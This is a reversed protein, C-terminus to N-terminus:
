RARRGEQSRDVQGQHEQVGGARQHGRCQGRGSGARRLCGAVGPGLPRGAQVHVDYKRRSGAHSGASHQDAGAPVAAPPYAMAPDDYRSPDLNNAMGQDLGQNMSDMMQKQRLYDMMQMGSDSGMGNAGAGAGAFPSQASAPTASAKIDDIAKQIQDSTSGPTDGTTSGPTGPTTAGPPNLSNPDFTSDPTKIPNPTLNPNQQAAPLGAIAKQLDAANDASQKALTADFKDMRDIMAQVGDASKESSGAGEEGINIIETLAQSMVDMFEKDTAIGSVAYNMGSILNTIKEHGAVTTAEVDKMVKILEEETADFSAADDKLKKATDRYDSGGQGSFGTADSLTGKLTPVKRLTPDKKNALDGFHVYNENLTTAVSDNPGAHWTKLMPNLKEPQLLFGRSPAINVGVAVEPDPKFPADPKNYLSVHEGDWVYVRNNPDAPDPPPKEGPHTASWIANAGASGLGQLFNPGWGRKVFDAANPDKGRGKAFFSERQKQWKLKRELAQKTPAVGKGTSKYIDRATKAADKAAKQAAATQTGALKQAKKAARIDKNADRVAKAARKAATPNKAAKVAKNAARLATQGDTLADDASKQATRAAKTGAKAAKIADAAPAVKALSSESAALGKAFRGAVVKAAGQGLLGGV